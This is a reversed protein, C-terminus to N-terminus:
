WSIEKGEFLPITNSATNNAAENIIKSIVGPLENICAVYYNNEPLVEKFSKDIRNSRMSYSGSDTVSIHYIDYKESADEYLTKTNIRAQESDGLCEVLSTGTGHLEIYPNLPEDGLTIIIGKKGRNWCDLRAHKLGTYWALSYSEWGNGGGGYEFYVNDLAEAIRIDSEFQSMQIPVDDCEIDGIAMISFEVDKTEEYIEKMISGLSQAVKVASSGMSGTVDLALIVPVTNPHEANDCCERIKNKVDLQEHLRRQKFMEHSSVKDTLSCTAANFTRGKSASYSAYSTTTFSGCGM